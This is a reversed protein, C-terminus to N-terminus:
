MHRRLGSKPTLSAAQDSLVTSQEGEQEADLKRMSAMSIGPERMHPTDTRMLKDWANGTSGWPGAAPPGEGAESLLRPEVEHAVHPIIRVLYVRQWSNEGALRRALAALPAGAQIPVKGLLLRAPPAGDVGVERPLLVADGDVRM